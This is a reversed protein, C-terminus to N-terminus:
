LSAYVRPIYFLFHQELVYFITFLYYFIAVLEAVQLLKLTELKM